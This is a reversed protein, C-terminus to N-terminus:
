FTDYFDLPNPQVKPVLGDVIAGVKKANLRYFFLFPLIFSIIFIVEIVISLISITLSSTLYFESNMFKIDCYVWVFLLVLLGLYYTWKFWSFIKKSLITVILNGAGIIAFTILTPKWVVILLASIFSTFGIFHFVSHFHLSRNSKKLRKLSKKKYTKKTSLEGPPLNISDIQNSINQLVHHMITDFGGLLYFGFLACLLPVITTPLIEFTTTEM